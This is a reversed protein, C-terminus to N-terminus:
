FPKAIGKVADEEYKKILQEREKLLAEFEAQWGLLGALKELTADAEGLMVINRQDKDAAIKSPMVKDVILRPVRSDVQDILDSFPTIKLTTGIVIVLDAQSIMQSQAFFSSPLAEGFLVVDPKCPGKCKSCFLPEGKVIHETMLESSVEAKCSACHSTAITGHAQMCNEAKLGAEMELGDINQTYVKLLIGKDQLLRIFYHGKTPFYKKAMSQMVSYFAKPNQKFFSLQFIAEPFPLNYEQLKSYIGSGPSRFDPIGASVSLGAGVM